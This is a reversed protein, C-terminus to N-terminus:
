SMVFALPVLRTRGSAVAPAAGSGCYRCGRRGPGAPTRGDRIDVTADGLGLLGGHDAGGDQGGGSLGQAQGVQLQGFGAGALDPDPQGGGPDAVAVQGQGAAREGLGDRRHEPM